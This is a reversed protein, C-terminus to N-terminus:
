DIRSVMPLRSRTFVGVLLATLLPLVVVLSGILEWPIALFHDPLAPNLDQVWEAGTLPYTVAIGPILGVVVGLLAGVLAIVLAYSAAVARRTRPAAGVASLTALDPRADSLSLFTATLTGGLMLVAGLSGLVLQIILTEDGAQYGREVYMSADADLALLAENVDEEQDESIDGEVLLGVPVPEVGVAAAAEPSLVGQARAELQTVEIFLAPVTARGVVGGQGDSHAVLRVEDADVEQDTFVVAGGEALVREAAQRDDGVADALHPPVAGGESVPFSSLTGSYGSLVSEVGEVRTDVYTYRRMSEDPGMVRTVSADPVYQALVQEVDDIAVGSPPTVSAQGVALMPTYTARGQETDSANGIGLAVVGAVTAAVAAVAPVTRTRHRAADRVAFRLALPLRRAVRALAVVVVPVLLIMGLVAVIASIAIVYEGGARTAGYAALAIGVGLLVLGLLPSRLSPKRDGRRGALVAVVDQRSAIWAPVLAALLASLLGFGAIGLVHPWPVDYPGLYSGQFRQVVPLVLWAVVLGLGVGLTAGAIGLVVGSAIVVRRAQRPTAGNAVMLALSRQLRRAIVAFAPGALLVVELLAMVVVLVVVALWADDTGGVYGIEPSIESAPPPDTLVARSWVTAGIANLAQVDSWTVPGGADVLWAHRGEPAKLGLGGPPAMAIATSRLVAHEVIGVVTVSSGSALELDEGVEFPGRDALERNVAVEGVEVPVRGDVLRFTGDTLPSTLDTEYLEVYTRGADTAVQRGGRVVEVADVERGLAERVDDLSRPTAKPRTTWGSTENPDPAQVAETVGPEVTVLADAGGVTREVAEGAKVDSTQIVVDAATVALVPLAIMLLVLVSRGKARWAERRAM